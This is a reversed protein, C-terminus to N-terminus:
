HTSYWCAGNQLHHIHNQATQRSSCSQRRLHAKIKHQLGLEMELSTKPSNKGQTSSREKTELHWLDPQSSGLEGSISEVDSSLKSCARLRIKKEM